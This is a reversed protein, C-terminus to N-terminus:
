LLQVELLKQLHLEQLHYYYAMKKLLFNLLKQM